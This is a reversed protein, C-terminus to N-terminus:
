RVIKGLARWNTRSGPSVVCSLSPLDRRLRPGLPTVECSRDVFVRVIFGGVVVEAIDNPNIGSGATRSTKHDTSGPRGHYRQCDLSVQPCASLRRLPVRM